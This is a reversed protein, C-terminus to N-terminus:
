LVHIYYSLDIYQYPLPLLLQLWAPVQGLGEVDRLSVFSL